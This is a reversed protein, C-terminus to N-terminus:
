TANVTPLSNNGIEALVNALSARLSVPNNGNGTQLSSFGFLAIILTILIGMIFLMQAFQMVREFTSSRMVIPSANVYGGPMANIYGGPLANAYGGSM